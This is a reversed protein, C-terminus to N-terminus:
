QQVNLLSVIFKKKKLRPNSWVWFRVQTLRKLLRRELWQVVSRNKFTFTDRLIVELVRNELVEKVKDYQLKKLKKTENKRFFCFIAQLYCM